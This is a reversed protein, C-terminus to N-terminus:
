IHILSLKAVGCEDWARGDDEELFTQLLRSISPTLRSSYPGAYDANEKRHIIVNGECWERYGLRKRGSWVRECLGLAEASMLNELDTIM